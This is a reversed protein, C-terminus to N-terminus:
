TLIGGISCNPISLIGMAYMIVYIFLARRASVLYFIDNHKISEYVVWCIHYFSLEYLEDFYSLFFDFGSLLM